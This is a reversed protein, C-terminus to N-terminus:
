NEQKNQLYPFAPGLATHGSSAGSGLVPGPVCYTSLFYKKEVCSLFKKQVSSVLIKM